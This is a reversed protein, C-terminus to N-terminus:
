KRGLYRILDTKGKGKLDIPGLARGQSTAKLAPWMANTVLVAGPEAEAAVRAAVNVTDGWLDFVFSKKGMVGAVVPGLHVGVRVAWGAGQAKAAEVM